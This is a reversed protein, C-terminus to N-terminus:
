LFRRAPTTQISARRCFSGCMVPFGGAATRWTIEDAQEAPAETDEGRQSGMLLPKGRLGESSARWRGTPAPPSADPSCAATMSPHLYKLSPQQAPSMGCDEHPAGPAARTRSCSRPASPAPTPPMGARCTPILTVPPPSPTRRGTNTWSSSTCHANRHIVDCGRRWTRPTRCTEPPSLVCRRGAEVEDGCGAAPDSGGRLVSSGAGARRRSRSTVKSGTTVDSICSLVLSTDSSQQLM